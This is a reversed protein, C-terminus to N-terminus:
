ISIGVAVHGNVIEPPDVKGLQMHKGGCIFDM